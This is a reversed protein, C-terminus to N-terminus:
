RRFKGRLWDFRDSVRLKFMTWLRWVMVALLAALVYGIIGIWNVPDDEPSEVPWVSIANPYISLLTSRWGYHRVAVRKQTSLQADAQVDGSDFKFYPPWGWGTDENRFVRPTGDEFATNIFRIDRNGAPDASDGTSSWFFSRNSVDTRVVETGVVTVMDISPLTYNLFVVYIAVIVIRAVIRLTRMSRVGANRPSEAFQRTRPGSNFM